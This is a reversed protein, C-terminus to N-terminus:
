DAWYASARKAFMERFQATSKPLVAGTDWDLIVAFHRVADLADLEGSRFKTAVSEPDETLWARRQARIRAREAHTADADVAYEALDKDIVRLVVGYDKRARELSVYDDAVDERVLAPDRELPDGFGGGGATPRSFVDGSNLAVDSFASGLWDVKDGGKRTLSLGHPMSPLGGQIGWVIARERDCIYSIM